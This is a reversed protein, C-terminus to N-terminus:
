ENVLEVIRTVIVHTFAPAIEQRQEGVLLPTGVTMRCEIVVSPRQQERGVPGSAVASHIEIFRMPIRLLLLPAIGDIHPTVDIGFSVLYIGADHAVGEIKSRIAHLSEAAIINVSHTEYVVYQHRTRQEM